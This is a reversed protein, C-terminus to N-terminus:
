LLLWQGVTNVAPGEGFHKTFLRFYYLEEKSHIISHKAQAEALEGDPVQGDFYGPLINASGSGQSFEQKSRWVISKPLLGEYATRFIRKEIKTYGNPHQKYQPPITLSHLREGPPPIQCYPSQNAPATNCWPM